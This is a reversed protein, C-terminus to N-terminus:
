VNLPDKLEYDRTYWPCTSYSGKPYFPCYVGPDAGKEIGMELLKLYVEKAKDEGTLKFRCNATQADDVQSGKEGTTRLQRLRLHKCFM